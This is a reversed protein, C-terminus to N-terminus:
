DRLVRGQIGSWDRHARVGRRLDFGGGEDEGVAEDGDQIGVGACWSVSNMGHSKGLSPSTVLVAMDVGRRALAVRGLRKAARSDRRPFFPRRVWGKGLTM